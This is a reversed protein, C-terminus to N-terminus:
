KRSTSRRRRTSPKDEGSAFLNLDLGKRDVSEYATLTEQENILLDVVRQAFKQLDESKSLDYLEDRMYSRVFSKTKDDWHEARLYFLANAM